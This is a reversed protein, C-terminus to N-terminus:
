FLPLMADPMVTLHSSLVSVSVGFVLDTKM